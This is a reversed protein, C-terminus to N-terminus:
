FPLLLTEGRPISGRAELYRNSTTCNCDQARGASSLLPLSTIVSKNNKSLKLIYIGSQYVDIRGYCLVSSLLVMRITRQHLSTLRGACNRFFGAERSFSNEVRFELCDGTRQNALVSSDNAVLVLHDITATLPTILAHEIENTVIKIGAATPTPTVVSLDPSPSHIPVIVIILELCGPYQRKDLQISKM